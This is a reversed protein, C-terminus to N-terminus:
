KKIKMLNLLTSAVQLEIHSQASASMRQIESTQREFHETARGWSWLGRDRDVSQQASHLKSYNRNLTSIDSRFETEKTYFHKFPNNDWTGWDDAKYFSTSSRTNKQVRVKHQSWGILRLAEKINKFASDTEPQKSEPSEGGTTARSIAELRASLSDKKTSLDHHLEYIKQLSEREARSLPPVITSPGGTIKAQEWNTVASQVKQFNSLHKQRERQVDTLHKKTSAAYEFSLSSKVKTLEGEKSIESLVSAISTTVEGEQPNLEDSLTLSNSPKELDLKTESLTRGKESFSIQLTDRRTNFDLQPKSGERQVDSKFRSSFLHGGWNQKESPNFSRLNSELTPFLAGNAGLFSAGGLILKM